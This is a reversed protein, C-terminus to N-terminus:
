TPLETFFVGKISLLCELEKSVHKVTNEKEKHTHTHAETYACTPPPTEALAVPVTQQYAM